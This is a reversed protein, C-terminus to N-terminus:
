HCKVIRLELEPHHYLFLKKKLKFAETEVGKIDEIVVQETAGDVYSFDAEYIIARQKKGTRDVFPPQLEFTPHVKLYGIEGAKELLQLEKYRNAEAKSDFRIGDYETARAHYKHARKM